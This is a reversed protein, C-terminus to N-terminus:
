LNRRDIVRVAKGNSRPLSQPEVFTINVRLGIEDHIHDEINKKIDEIHKVEDSFLINSAEVQVELEDLHHPRTVIIQYHPELGKINLIAREIQSPFVIVGRIKLMDDSRGTIRDMKVLTRGCECKERRLTTIDRTRFRIIPMGERTLTTLVLEGKEGHPLPKLNEPDIIEPYFHDDFIHLGNKETCEQAVGPGIIETLGYVNLASLNLRNEIEERMEETWMEAGFVGSKLSIKEPEVGNNQLM